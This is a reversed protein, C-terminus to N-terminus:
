RGGEAEDIEETRKLANLAKKAEALKGKLREQSAALYPKDAMDKIWSELQELIFARRLYFHNNIVDEFASNKPSTLHDLIAWRATGERINATYSANAKTSEASGMGKEFGPENYYPDDVLILSQISVIVQLFTSINENWTEGEQGEWTGLISLCVKGCNYLNPNFRVTGRGTTQLNVMPPKSPYLPPFYVDFIFLGASYPTGEPGAIMVQLMDM